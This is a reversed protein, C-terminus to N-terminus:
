ANANWSEFMSQALNDRFSTWENSTGVNTINDDDQGVGLDETGEDPEDDDEFPDIPMEQRPKDQLPVLCKIYTGYLAGLCNKFLKWRQDTSNDCVPEPKKLLRPHLRIVANCVRAFCRSITEGSRHFRCIMVRNKANHAVIHLFIAVQEDVDM